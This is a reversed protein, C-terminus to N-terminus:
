YGTKECIAEHCYGLLKTIEELDQAMVLQAIRGRDPEESMLEDVLLDHLLSYTNVEPYGGMLYKVYKGYDM